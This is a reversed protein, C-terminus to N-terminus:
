WEQRDQSRGGLGDTAPMDTEVKPGSVPLEEESDDTATCLMVHQIFM